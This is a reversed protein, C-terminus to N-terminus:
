VAAKAAKREAAKAAKAIIDDCADTLHETDFGGAHLYDRIGLLSKPGVGDLARLDDATAAALQDLRRIGGRILAACAPIGDLDELLPPPQSGDPLPPYIVRGPKAPLQERRVLVALMDLFLEHAGPTHETVDVLKAGEPRLHLVACRDVHPM